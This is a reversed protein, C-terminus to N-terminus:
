AANRSPHQVRCCRARRARSDVFALFMLLVVPTLCIASDIHEALTFYSEKKRRVSVSSSRKSLKMEAPPKIPPTEAMAKAGIQNGCQGAQIHVIERM